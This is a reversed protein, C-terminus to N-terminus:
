QPTVLKLVIHHIHLFAVLEKLSTGLFLEKSDPFCGYITQGSSWVLIVTTHVASSFLWGQINGTTQKSKLLM